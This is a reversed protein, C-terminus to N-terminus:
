AMDRQQDTLAPWERRRIVGGRYTVVTDLETPVTFGLHTLLERETDTAPRTRSVSDRWNRREYDANATADEAIQLAAPLMTDFVLWGRVDDWGRHPGIGSAGFDLPLTVPLSESDTTTM